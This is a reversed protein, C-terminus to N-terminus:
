GESSAYIENGDKDKVTKLRACIERVTLLAKRFEWVLNRRELINIEEEPTPRTVKPNKPEKPKKPETLKKSNVKAAAANKVEQFEAKKQAATKKVPKEEIITQLWSHACAKCKLRWKKGKNELIDFKKHQCKPCEVIKWNKNSKILATKSISKAEVSPLNVETKLKQDPQPTNNQAQKKAM